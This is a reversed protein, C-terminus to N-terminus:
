TTSMIRKKKNNHVKPESPCLRPPTNLEHNNDEVYDRGDLNVMIASGTKERTFTDGKKHDM